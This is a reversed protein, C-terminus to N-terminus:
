EDRIGGGDHRCVSVMGDAAFIATVYWTGDVHFGTFDDWGMLVGRGIGDWNKVM